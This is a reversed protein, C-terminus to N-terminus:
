GMRVRTLRQLPPLDASAGGMESAYESTDGIALRWSQTSHHNARVRDGSPAPELM